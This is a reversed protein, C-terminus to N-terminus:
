AKFPLSSKFLLTFALTYKLKFKNRVSILHVINHSEVDIIAKFTAQWKGFMQCSKHWSKHLFGPVIESDLNVPHNRVLSFFDIYGDTLASCHSQSYQELQSMMPWM